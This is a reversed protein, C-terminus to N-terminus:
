FEYGGLSSGDLEPALGRRLRVESSKARGNSEVRRLEVREWCGYNRAVTRNIQDARAAQRIIERADTESLLLAASAPILLMQFLM